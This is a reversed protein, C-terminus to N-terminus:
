KNDAKITFIQIVTLGFASRPPRIAPRLFVLKDDGPTLSAARGNVAVLSSRRRAPGCDNELSRPATFTDAIQRLILEVSILFVRQVKVLLVAPRIASMPPTLVVDSCGGRKTLETSSM